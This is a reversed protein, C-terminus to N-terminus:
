GKRPGLYERKKDVQDAQGVPPKSAREIANSVIALAAGLLRLAGVLDVTSELTPPRDTFATITLKAAITTPAAQAIALKGKHNNSM